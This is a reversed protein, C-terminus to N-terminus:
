ENKKLLEMYSICEVMKNEGFLENLYKIFPDFEDRIYGINLQEFKRLIKKAVFYDIADTEEGGSAVFVAVFTKLQKMIRNGFTIRFHTILYKDILGINDLGKQSIPHEKLAKDFLSYLCESNLDIAEQPRCEFPDVKTNIDIPMARDYVKDTVMFTSDDNNITGIYWINKGLLLKGNDLKIPDHEDHDTVLSVLWENSNPMELISLVEAFYYEVRALNMEDLVVTHIRDDYLAGYIEVLANTENFKKTFENLYGFFDSRDRWSPQVSSICPELKNFKSWAYSLSTKGTGSIGQLIIMKGCALGALFVRLLSIDYYLHLQSAAFCRFDDLLQELDQNNNFNVIKTKQNLVDLRSLQPFRCNGDIEIKDDEAKVEETNPEEPKLGLQSVKMALIEEKEKVLTGVKENLDAVEELLSEQEVLTKRFRIYKRVIFVIIIVILAVIIILVAITLGVFIWEKGNFQEAYNQILYLYDKPSFITKFGAIIGSGIEGLGSVIISILEYFFRIFTSM